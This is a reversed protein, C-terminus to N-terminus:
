TFPEEAQFQELISQHTTTITNRFIQMAWSVLSIPQITLKSTTKSLFWFTTWQQCTSLKSPMRLQSVSSRWWLLTLLPSTAWSTLRAESAVKKLIIASHSTRSAGSSWISTSAYIQNRWCILLNRIGFSFGLNAQMKVWWVEQSSWWQDYWLSLMNKNWSCRKTRKSHRPAQAELDKLDKMTWMCGTTQQTWLM